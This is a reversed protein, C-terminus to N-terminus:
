LFPDGKRKSKKLRVSEGSRLKGGQKVVGVVGRRGMVDYLIRKNWIRLNACPENQETVEVIVGSGFLLQDGRNLDSLDGVKEILINEGFGGPPIAISFRRNLDDVVEKSVISIMRDNEKMKGTRRSRREPGAHHDGQVGWQDIHIEDQPKKLLGATPSSCVAVVRGKGPTTQRM